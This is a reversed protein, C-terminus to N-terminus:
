AAESGFLDDLTLRPKKCRHRLFSLAAQAEDLRLPRHGKLKKNLTPLQMGLAESLETQTVGHQDLFETIGM